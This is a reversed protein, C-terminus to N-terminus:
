FVVKKGKSIYIHGKQPDEVKRGTLDYLAEEINKAEMIATRDIATAPFESSDIEVFNTFFKWGKAKEYKEKTGKPIYVTPANSADYTSTFPKDYYPSDYVPPEEAACYLRKLSKLGRLCDTGLWRLSAPLVLQEVGAMDALGHHDIRIVGLPLELSKISNCEDFVNERITKVSHPINIETLEYARELFCTPIETMGEGLYIKRLNYNDGFQIVGDELNANTNPFYIEELQTGRFAQSGLKELGEPLSLYTIATQYFACDRIEKLTSPLQIHQFNKCYQFAGEGILELGEPLVLPDTAIGSMYFALDEIRRLSTPFNIQKLNSTQCFANKKIKEVSEPLIIRRLPSSYFMYGGTSSKYSLAFACEPVTNDKIESEALNIVTLHGFVTAKVMTLFDNSDIPGNVVLSDITNAEDGLLAELEGYQTTTVEKFKFERDESSRAATQFKSGDENTPLAIPTQFCTDGFNIASPYM